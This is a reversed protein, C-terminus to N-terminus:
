SIFASTSIEDAKAKGILKEVIALAFEAACGMGKSTIINGDVVVRDNKIIAGDLYEEFGPFCTANKGKLYGMIGLISPAACIACVLSSNQMALHIANIVEANEELNTTGPMGGPLIIAEPITSDLEDIHTDAIVPINHTGMVIRSEGIAVTKIELGTRRLVDVTFLAEIEEFGDALFLYIM